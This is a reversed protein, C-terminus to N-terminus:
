VLFGRKRERSNEALSAKCKASIKLGKAQNDEEIKLNKTIEKPLKPSKFIGQLVM